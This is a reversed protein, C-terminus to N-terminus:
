STTTAASTTESGSTATSSTPSTATSSTSTEAGSTGTTPTTSTAGTDTSTVPVSTSVPSAGPDTSTPTVTAAPDRNEVKVNLQNWEDLLDQKVTQNGVDAVKTSIVELREQAQEWKGNDILQRVEAMESKAALAVTDDRVSSVEGFLVSRLGYLSDGPGAGHIVAGFGGLAMVAAALSGVLAFGRRPRHMHHTTLGDRLAAAAEGDTVVDDHSHLRIDDRWGELLAILEIDAADNAVIRREDALADFLGASRAIDELREPEPM